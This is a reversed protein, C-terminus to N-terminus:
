LLIIRNVNPWNIFTIIEQIYSYDGLVCLLILYNDLKELIGREYSVMGERGGDWASEGGVQSRQVM